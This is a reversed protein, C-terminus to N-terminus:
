QEIIEEHRERIFELGTKKSLIIRLPLRSLLNNSCAKKKTQELPVNKIAHGERSPSSPLDNEKKELKMLLEKMKNTHNMLQSRDELFHCIDDGFVMM